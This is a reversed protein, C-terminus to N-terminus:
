FFEGVGLCFCSPSEVWKLCSAGLLWSCLKVVSPHQLICAVDKLIVQNSKGKCTAIVVYFPHCPHPKSVFWSTAVLVMYLLWDCKLSLLVCICEHPWWDSNPGKALWPFRGKDRSKLPTSLKGDEWVSFLSSYISGSHELWQLLLRSCFAKRTGPLNVQSTKLVCCSTWVAAQLDGLHKGSSFHSGGGKESFPIMAVENSAKPGCCSAVMCEFLEETTLGEGEGERQHPPVMFRPWSGLVALIQLGSGSM